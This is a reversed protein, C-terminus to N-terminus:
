HVKKGGIKGRGGQKRSNALAYFVTKGKKPGYFQGMSRMVKKGHKTLPMETVEKPYLQAIDRV